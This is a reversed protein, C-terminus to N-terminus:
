EKIERRKKSWQEEMPEYVGEIVSTNEASFDSNEFMDYIADLIGDVKSDDIEIEFKM